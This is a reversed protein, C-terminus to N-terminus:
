VGEKQVVCIVKNGSFILKGIKYEQNITEKHNDSNGSYRVYFVQPDSSIYKTDDMNVLNNIENFHDGIVRLNQLRDCYGHFYPCNKNTCKNDLFFRCTNPSQSQQKFDTPAPKINSSDDMMSIDHSFHCKDGFKCIGKLFYPCITKKNSM